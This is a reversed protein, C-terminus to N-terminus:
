PENALVPMIVAGPILARALSLCEDETLMATTYTDDDTQVDLRAFHDGHVVTINCPRFTGTQCFIQSM